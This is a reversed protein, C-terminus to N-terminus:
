RRGRVRAWWGQTEQMVSGVERQSVDRFDDVSREYLRWADQWSGGTPDVPPQGRKYSYRETAEVARYLFLASSYAAQRSSIANHVRELARRFPDNAPLTPIEDESSLRGKSWEWAAEVQRRVAWARESASELYAEFLAKHQASYRYRDERREANRQNRITAWAGIIAGAMAGLFSVVGDM